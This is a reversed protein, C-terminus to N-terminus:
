CYCCHSYLMERVRTINQTSCFYRRRIQDAETSISMNALDRSRRHEFEMMATCLILDRSTYKDVVAEEGLSHWCGFQRKHCSQRGQEALLLVRFNGLRSCSRPSGFCLKASIDCLCTGCCGLYNHGQGGHPLSEILLGVGVENALLSHSHVGVAPSNHGDYENRHCSVVMV